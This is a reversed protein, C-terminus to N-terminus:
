ATVGRSVALDDGSLGDADLAAGLAEVALERDSSPDFAALVRLTLLHRASLSVGATHAARLLEGLTTPAAVRSLLASVVDEDDATFHSHPAPLEELDPDSLEYPDERERRPMLLKDILQAVRLSVPARPAQFCALIEGLQAALIRAPMCLAPRLVDAELDPLPTAPRPRFAQREQEGLYHRNAGILQEHLRAHRTICELLTERLSALQAATEAEAVDLRVEVARLIDREAEIREAVHSRAADLLGLVETVWDVQTIDRRATELVGVIKQEYEISRLRARQATRVADRIRGRSIQARLVAEEAIQADEVPYELMGAYMNVGETSAVIVTGGDASERERLLHFRLVKRTAGEPTLSLYSESFAQRRDPENLLATIVSEGIAEAEGREVTPCSMMVLPVLGERLEDLTVGQGLGMQEITIDLARLALARLDQEGLAEGRRGKNAEVRHLPATRLLTRVRRTLADQWTDPDPEAM